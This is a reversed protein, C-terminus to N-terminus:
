ADWKRQWASVTEADGSQGKNKEWAGKLIKLSGVLWRVTVYCDTQPASISSIFAPFSPQLLSSFPILPSCSAHLCIPSRLTFSLIHSQRSGKCVPSCSLVIPSLLFLCRNSQIILGSSLHVRGLKCGLVSLSPSFQAVLAELKFILLLHWWHQCTLDLWDLNFCPLAAYITLGNRLM